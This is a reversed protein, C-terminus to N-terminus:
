VEHKLPVCPHPRNVPDFIDAIGPQDKVSLRMAFTDHNRKWTRHEWDGPVLFCDHSVVAAITCNSEDVHKKSVRQFTPRSKYVFLTSCAVNSVEGYVNVRLDVFDRYPDFIRLQLDYPTPGLHDIRPLVRVSDEPDGQVVTFYVSQVYSPRLEPPMPRRDHGPGREGLVSYVDDLLDVVEPLGCSDIMHFCLGCAHKADVDLVDNLLYLEVETM